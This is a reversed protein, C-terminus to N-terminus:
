EQLVNVGGAEDGRMALMEGVWVMIVLAM